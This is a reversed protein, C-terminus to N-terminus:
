FQAVTPEAFSRRCCLPHRFCEPVVQAAPDQLTTLFAFLGLFLDRL